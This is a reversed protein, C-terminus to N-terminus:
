LSDNDEWLDSNDTVWPNTAEATSILLDHDKFQDAYLQLSALRKFTNFNMMTKSAHTIINLM